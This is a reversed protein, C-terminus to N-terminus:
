ESRALISFRKETTGVKSGGWRRWLFLRLACDSATFAGMVAPSIHLETTLKPFLQRVAAVGVYTAFLASWAILLFFRHQPDAKQAPIIPDKGNARQRAHPARLFLFIIGTLFVLGAGVQFAIRSVYSFLYFGMALGISWSLNYRGVNRRMQEPRSLRSLVGELPAWLLGTTIGNLLNLSVLIMFSPVYFMVYNSVALVFACTALHPRLPLQESIRGSLLAMMVYLSSGCAALLGLDFNLAGFREIAMLPMALAVLAQGISILFSVAYVLYQM